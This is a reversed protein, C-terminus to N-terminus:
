GTCFTHVVFFLFLFPFPFGFLGRIIIVRFSVADFSSVVRYQQRCEINFQLNYGCLLLSLSIFYTNFLFFYFQRYSFGLSDVSLNNSTLTQGLNGYIFILSCFYFANIHGPVMANSFTMKLCLNRKYYCGWFIFSFLGLLLSILTRHPM